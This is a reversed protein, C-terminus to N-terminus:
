PRQRRAAHAPRAAGRHRNARRRVRPFGRQGALTITADPQAATDLSTTFQPKPKGGVTIATL